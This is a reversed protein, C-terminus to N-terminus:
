FGLERKAREYFSFDCYEQWPKPDRLQGYKALIDVSAKMGEPDLAGEGRFVKNRVIIYDYTRRAAQETTGQVHKILLRVAEERNAPNNLWRQSQIMAKMFRTVIDPSSRAFDTNVFSGVFQLNKIVDSYQALTPYGQDNAVFNLPPTLMTAAAGGSKLAAYRDGAAGVVLLQYEDKKVGNREMVEVFLHTLISSLGATAIKKGKLDKLTKIEPLTVIDTVLTYVRGAIVRIKGGREQATMSFHVGGSGLPASGAVVLRIVDPPQRLFIIEPSLGEKAFFGKDMAPYLDWDQSSPATSPLKLSQLEAAPSHSFGYLFVLAFVIGALLNATAKM